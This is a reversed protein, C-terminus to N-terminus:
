SHNKNKKAAGPTPVLGLGILVAQLVALGGLVLLLCGWLVLLAALKAVLAGAIFVVAGVAALAAAFRTRRRDENM